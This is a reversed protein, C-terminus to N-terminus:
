SDTTFAYRTTQRYVDGPRLVVPPFMPQNISDPFHQAELCFGAHQRYVAGGKGTISGDLFNGSYFQLGPETTHVRMIRGSGPDYVVAAPALRGGGSDLVYNVDYGGEVEAIRAGIEFSTRFDFPTGDVVAIEGTPILTDDAPTYHSAFLTLRHHRIDSNGDGSLNFYSHHTLNIPTAADTTAEYRLVLEDAGTLVYTVAATLTGPYGEDGAPSVHTFRVGKGDDTQVESAQWVVKDFGRVGGHLHNPGNNTALTYTVGDLTFKGKAIRNAVRGVTAGFYPHPSEWGALADFGLVVDATRGHRDPV